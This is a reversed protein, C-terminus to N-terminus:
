QDRRFKIKQKIIDTHNKCELVIHNDDAITVIYIKNDSPGYSLKLEGSARNYDYKGSGIGDNGCRKNGWIFSGNEKLAVWEFDSEAWATTGNNQQGYSAVEGWTGAIGPFKEKTCSFFVTALLLIAATTKM